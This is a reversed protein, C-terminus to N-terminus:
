FGAAEAGGIKLTDLTDNGLGGFFSAGTGGGVAVVGLFQGDRSLVKAGGSVAALEAETLERIKTTDNTKSM